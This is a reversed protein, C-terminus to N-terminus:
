GTPEVSIALAETYTIEVEDGKKLGSIFKQASPDVVNVTRLLGAPGTFSVTNRDRDVAEIVVTTSVATGVAAGPKQGPEARAVADKQDVRGITTSEGRKKFTAALAEYYRVVVKDGARVQELNRVEPSVEVTAKEGNPARLSVLRKPLDISEVTASISETNEVKVPEPPPKSACAALGACVALVSPVLLRRTSRSDM